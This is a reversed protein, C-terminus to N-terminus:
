KEENTGDPTVPRNEDLLKDIKRAYEETRDLEFTLSPIRRLQSAMRNGLNYRIVGTNQEVLHMVEEQKADPFISLYARANSLDPSLDVDTVSIIVGSMKQTELRFLEGLEKQILRALKTTRLTDM